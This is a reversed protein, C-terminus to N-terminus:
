SLSEEMRVYVVTPLVITCTRSKSPQVEQERSQRGEREELVGTVYEPRLVVNIFDSFDVYGTINCFFFFLVFSILNIITNNFSLSQDHDKEPSNLDFYVCQNWLPFFLLLLTIKSSEFCM